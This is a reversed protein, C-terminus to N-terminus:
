GKRIASCIAAKTIIKAVEDKDGVIYVRERSGWISVIFIEGEDRTVKAPSVGFKVMLEIAQANNQCPNYYARGIMAAGHYIWDDNEEDLSWGMCYIAAWESLQQEDDCDIVQQETPKTM